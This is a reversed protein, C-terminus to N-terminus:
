HVLFQSGLCSHHHPSSNVKLGLLLPSAKVHAADDVALVAREVAIRSLPQEGGGGGRGPHAVASVALWTAAAWLLLPARMSGQRVGLQSLRFCVAASIGLWKNYCDGLPFFNAVQHRVTSSKRIYGIMTSLLLPINGSGSHRASSLGGGICLTPQTACM